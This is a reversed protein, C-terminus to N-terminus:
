QSTEQAAEAVSDIIKQYGTCRCLNGSLASRIDTATPQDSTELFHWATIMMGSTCFGCQVAGNGQFSDQLKRMRGDDLLADLTRIEKSQCNAALSLCSRQPVGNILITCAGCVGQNCGRKPSTIRLEDRLVTLLIEGCAVEIERRAGNVDLTLVEKATMM